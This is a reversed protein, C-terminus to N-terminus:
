SRIAITVSGNGLSAGPVDQGLRLIMGVAFKDLVPAPKKWFSPPISSEDTIIVKPPCQKLSVTGAPAERKKIEALEMAKAILTRKMDARSEIKDKRTKLDAIAGGIGRVLAEDTKIDMVLADITELLSTEGEIVSTLFEPDDRVLDALDAKLLKAAEFEKHLRFSTSDSM